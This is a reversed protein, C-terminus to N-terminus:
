SIATEPERGTATVHATRVLWPSARLQEFTRRAEALLPEADDARGRGALWEAQELQTVAVHFVLGFERFLTAAARFRDEVPEHNGGAADARASLRSINAQLFPTREGPDASESTALLERAKKLNPVALAAEIAEVLCTKIAADTLTLEGLTALTQEAVALAEDSRGELRLLRTEEAAYATRTQWNDSERLRGSATLLARAADLDGRACHISAVVLLQARPLDSAVRPEEEAAVTLAEDWRGLLCLPGVMGTRFISEMRRNGRRRALLLSREEHGLVDAYRDSAEFVAALNNYARLETAYFQETQARAAAAELLIRAEALRGQNLLVVAKTNLAQVFLEPLQLREALTLAREVPGSAAENRGALSHM